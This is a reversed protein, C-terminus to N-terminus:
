GLFGAELAYGVAQSVHDATTRFKSAIAAYDPTQCLALSVQEVTARGDETHVDKGSWALLPFDDLPPDPHKGGVCSGTGVVKIKKLDLDAVM